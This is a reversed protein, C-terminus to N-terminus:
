GGAVLDANAVALWAARLNRPVFPGGRPCQGTGLGRLAIEFAVIQAAVLYGPLAPHVIRGIRHIARALWGHPDVPM